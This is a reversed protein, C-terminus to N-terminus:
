IEFLYKVWSEKIALCNPKQIGQTKTLNKEYKDDYTKMLVTYNKQEQMLPSTYRGGATTAFIVKWL